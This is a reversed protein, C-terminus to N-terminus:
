TKIKDETITSLLALNFKEKVFLKKALDIIEEKTIVDIKKIVEQPEFIKGEFILKRGVFSALDHTDELSLILRGKVMEKAKKVEEDKLEGEAIKQHEDIIVKIAENIKKADATLGARTYVYGTDSFPESGSHIYYCLGRRERLQYFLRSSMGGGLITMLVSQVYRKKDTYSLGRYGM